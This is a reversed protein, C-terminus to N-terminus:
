RERQWSPHNGEPHKSVQGALAFSCSLTSYNCDEKGKNWRERSCQSSGIIALAGYSRSVHVRTTLCIMVDLASDLPAVLMGSVNKEARSEESATKRKNDAQQQQQLWIIFALRVLKGMRGTIKKEKMRQIRLANWTTKMQIGRFRLSWDVCSSLITQNLWKLM